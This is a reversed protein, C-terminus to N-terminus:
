LLTQSVMRQMKQTSSSWYGMCHIGITMVEAQTACEPLKFSDFYSHAPLYVILMTTNTYTSIAM